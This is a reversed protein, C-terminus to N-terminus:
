FLRRSKDAADISVNFGHIQAGLVFGNYSLCFIVYATSSPLLAVQANDVYDDIEEKLKNLEDMDVSENHVLRLVTELQTIHWKHQGINTELKDIVEEDGDDAQESELDAELEDTQTTLKDICTQSSVPAFFLCLLANVLSYGKGEVRALVRM